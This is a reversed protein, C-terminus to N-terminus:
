SGGPLTGSSDTGGAPAEASVQDVTDTVTKVVDPAGTEVGVGAAVDDVTEVVTATESPPSPLSPGVGSGGAPAPDAPQPPPAPAAAPESEGSSGAGTGPPCDTGGPLDGGQEEGAAGNGGAQSAMAADSRALKSRSGTHPTRDAFAKSNEAVAATLSPAAVASSGSGWNGSGSGESGGPRELFRNSDPLTLLTLITAGAISAAVAITYTRVGTPIRPVVEKMSRLATSRAANLLARYGTSAVSALAGWARSAVRNAGANAHHAATGLRKWGATASGIAASAATAATGIATWIAALARAAARPVSVALV